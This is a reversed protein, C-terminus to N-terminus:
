AIIGRLYDIIQATAGKNSNFYKLMKHKILSLHQPINENWVNIMEIASHVEFASGIAILDGAEKFKHHQPGFFVPIGYAAPELINHISKGFGGGIYAAQAYRYLRSLLGVSDVIMLRFPEGKWQSHRLPHYAEFVIGLEKIREPSPDHPVVIIDYEDLNKLFDKLIFEDAPWTSGAIFVPRPRRAIQDFYEVPQHNSVIDMVRDIRTDGTVFAHSYHYQDLIKKSAKDQVFIASAKLVKGFLWRNWSKLLFYDKHLVTSIFIFPISRQILQDLHNYWYEYKVFIALGPQIARIFKKAEDATDIPMYGVWDALPYNKRIDFGSKSFFTLVISQHPWTKKISEIVPRGQEFEGLSACHIWIPKSLGAPYIQTKREQVFSYVKKNFLGIAPLSKSILTAISNYASKMKILIM